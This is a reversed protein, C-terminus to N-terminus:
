NSMAFSDRGWAPFGDLVCMVGNKKVSVSLQMNSTHQTIYKLQTHLMSLMIRRMARCFGSRTLVRIQVSTRTGDLYISQTFRLHSPTMHYPGPYRASLVPYYQVGNQGNGGRSLNQRFNVHIILAAITYDSTSKVMGIGVFNIDFTFASLELRLVPVKGLKLFSNHQQSRARDVPSDGAALHDVFHDPHQARIDDRDVVTPKSHVVVLATTWIIIDFTLPKSKCARTAPFIFAHSPNYLRALIDLLVNRSVMVPLESSM